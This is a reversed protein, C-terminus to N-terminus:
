TAFGPSPEVCTRSRRLLQWGFLLMWLPLVLVAVLESANSLADLGPFLGFLFIFGFSWGVVKLLFSGRWGARRLLNAAIPAWFLVLPGECWWLGNQTANAATSWAAAAAGRTAEDGGAYAHALPDFIGLQLAAGAIGVMIYLGVAFGVMNGLADLEERFAHIFYGGIVVFPLYFGFIDAVMCWRFLDRTDSPLSLMSAGHLVMGTDSGTVAISLGVNAYALLGGILASWATLRVVKRPVQNM